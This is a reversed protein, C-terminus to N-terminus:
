SSVHHTPAYVPESMPPSLRSSATDLSPPPPPQLQSHLNPPPLHIPHISPLGEKGADSTVTAGYVTGFSGEGVKAGKKLSALSVEPPVYGDMEPDYSGIDYSPERYARVVVVAAAAAARGRSPRRGHHHHMRPRRKLSPLGSSATASWRAIVVNSIGSPNNLGTMKKTSAVVISSARTAAVAPSM